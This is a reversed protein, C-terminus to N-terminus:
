WDLGLEKRARKNAEDTAPQIKKCFTALDSEAQPNVKIAQPYILIVTDVNDDTPIAVRWSPAENRLWEQVFDLFETTLIEVHGIEIQLTREPTSYSDVVFCQRKRVPIPELNYRKALWSRLSEWKEDWEKGSMETDNPNAKWFGEWDANRLPGTRFEVKTNMPHEVSNFRIALAYAAFLFGIAWM